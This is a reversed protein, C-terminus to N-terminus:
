YLKKQLTLNKIDIYLPIIETQKVDSWASLWEDASGTQLENVFSHCKRPLDKCNCKRHGKRCRYLAVKRDTTGNENKFL